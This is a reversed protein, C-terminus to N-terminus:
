LLSPTVGAQTLRDLLSQGEEAQALCTGLAACLINM